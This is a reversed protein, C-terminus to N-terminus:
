GGLKERMKKDWGFPLPLEGLNAMWALGLAALVIGWWLQGYLILVVGGAILLEDLLEVNETLGALLDLMGMM